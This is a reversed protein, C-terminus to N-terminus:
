LLGARSVPGPGNAALAIAVQGHFVMLDAMASVPVRDIKEKGMGSILQDSIDEVCVESQEELARAWCGEDILLLAVEDKKVSLGSFLADYPAVVVDAVAVEALNRQKPCTDFYRCQAAGTKSCVAGRVPLHAALAARVAELDRCMPDGTVPDEREYGRLVAVKAGAAHWSAATEEALVHSATFVLVRHPLGRARLDEALPLLRDRAIHSKGLGVTARVGLAPLRGGGGQHWDQVQECFTQLLTVLQARGEEVSLTPEDYEPEPTITNRSPLRGDHALRLKDQVKRTADWFAYARADDQKRRSLDTSDAFRQWVQAALQDVDLTGAAELVDQVAHFAIQSLWADRGDTVLGQADRVPDGSDAAKRRRGAGGSTNPRHDTPGIEALFAAAATQDIM